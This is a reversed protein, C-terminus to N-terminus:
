LSLKTFLSIRVTLLQRHMNKTNESMDHEMLTKIIARRIYIIIIYVPTVPLTMHLATFMTKWELVSPNGSITQNDLNYEPFHDHIIKEIQDPPGSAM